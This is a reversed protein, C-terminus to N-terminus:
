KKTNVEFTGALVLAVVDSCASVVVVGDVAAGVAVMVVLTEVASSVDTVVAVVLEPVAVAVVVGWGAVDACPVCLTLPLISM